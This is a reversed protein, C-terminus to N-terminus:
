IDNVKNQLLIVKDDKASLQLHMDEVMGKLEAISAELRLIHAAQDSVKTKLDGVEVTLETVKKKLEDNERRLRGNEAELAKIHAARGRGRYERIKNRTVRYTPPDDFSV